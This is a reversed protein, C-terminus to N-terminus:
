RGRVSTFYFDSGGLDMSYGLADVLDDHGKPFARLEREFETDKLTPHHFVKHGEYKAAVARARTTKDNDAKKGEIPVRPYERMVEQILTSQFQQSEVVVLSMDPRALWGEHVFEAHHTERKDRAYSLVYFNGERDEAVTVRATYDAREKESSALDVGMRITVDEPLKDFYEFQGPFLNGALLGSVDNQYACFFTPTGQDSWKELLLDVPWYNPWYSVLSSRDTLDGTTSTLAPIILSEWGKGPESGCRETVPTILLEYVDEVAWRTGLVIVVGGPKLCPLVTKLLWEAVKARAEPTVSNEEDLIDDCLIIDFRKSIISGGVGRAYMTTNNTGLGLSSDRRMWEDSKWTQDTDNKLSGFIELHRPNLTVTNRIALSFATAMTQTNSMLGIAIDPFLSILWSCLGTNGHTTKAGGRPLLIVTNRRREIASYIKDLMQRHHPEVPLGLVYENYAILGEVSETRILAGLAQSHLASRQEETLAALSSQL